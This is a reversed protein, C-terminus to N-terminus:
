GRFGLMWGGFINCRVVSVGLISELEADKEGSRFAGFFWFPHAEEEDVFLITDSGTPVCSIATSGCTVVSVTSILDVTLM